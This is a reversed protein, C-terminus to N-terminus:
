ESPAPTRAEKMMRAAIIFLALFSIPVWWFRSNHFDNSLHIAAMGAWAIMYGVALLTKGKWASRSFQHVFLPLLLVFDWSWVYPSIIVTLCFTWLLAVNAPLKEWAAVAAAMGGLLAIGWPLYKWKGMWPELLSLISPQVWQSSNAKLSAFFDSIWNPEAFFLPLCLISAAVLTRLGYVALRQFGGARFQYLSIGFLVMFGVQPKVMGLALFFASLWPKREILQVSLALSLAALISIQGLAFHNIVPPFFYVFTVGALLNLLSLRNSLSFNLLLALGAANLGFWIQQAIEFRFFGLPFFAGVATPMWLAPLEPQLPATHYPSEGRVLLSVPLWLNNYFDTQTQTAPQYAILVVPVVLVLLLLHFHRPPNM